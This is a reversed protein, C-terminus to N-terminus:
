IEEGDLWAMGAYAHSDKPTLVKTLRFEIPRFGHPVGCRAGVRYVAKPELQTVDTVVCRGDPPVRVPVVRRLVQVGGPGEGPRQAARDGQLLRAQRAPLRYVPLRAADCQQDDRCVGPHM